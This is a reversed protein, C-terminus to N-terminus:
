CADAAAAATAAALQQTPLLYAELQREIPQQQPSPHQSSAFRMFQLLRHTLQTCSLLLLLV